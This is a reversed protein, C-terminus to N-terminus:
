KEPNPRKQFQKHGFQAKKIKQVQCGQAVANKSIHRCDPGQLWM